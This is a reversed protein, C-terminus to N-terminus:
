EIKHKQNNDTNRLPPDATLKEAGRNAPTRRPRIPIDAPGNDDTGCGQKESKQEAHRLYARMGRCQDPPGPPQAPERLEPKETGSKGVQDVQDQLQQLPRELQNPNLNSRRAFKVRAAPLEDVSGGAGGNCRGEGHEPKACEHLPGVEAHAFEVDGNGAEGVVEVSEADNLDAVDM